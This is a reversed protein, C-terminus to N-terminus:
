FTSNFEERADPVGTGVFGEGLLSLKEMIIEELFRPVVAVDGVLIQKPIGGFTGAVIAFQLTAEGGEGGGLTALVFGFDSGVDFFGGLEYFARM